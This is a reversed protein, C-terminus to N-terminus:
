IEADAGPKVGKWSPRKLRGAVERLACLAAKLDTENALPLRLAEVAQRSEDNDGKTIINHLRRGLTQGLVRTLVLGAPSNPNPLNKGAAIPQTGDLIDILRDHQGRTQKWNIKVDLFDRYWDLSKGCRLPNVLLSALFGAAELRLQALFHVLERERDDPFPCQSLVLWKGAAEALHNSGPLHLILPGSSSLFSQGQIFLRDLLRTTEKRDPVLLTLLDRQQPEFTALVTPLDPCPLELLQSVRTLLAPFWEEPSAVHPEDEGCLSILCSEEVLLPHTHQYVYRGSSVQLLAPLPIGEEQLAFHYPAHNQHLVVCREQGLRAPVCSPHLHLDGVLALCPAKALRLKQIMANERELFSPSNPTGSDPHELALIQCGQERGAELLAEYGRTPVSGWLEAFGIAEFFEAAPRDSAVWVDLESQKSAPIVELALTHAAYSRLFYAAVLQARPLTHYDGVLLFDAHKARDLFRDRDIRRWLEPFSREFDEVAQRLSPKGDTGLKRAQRAVREWLERQLDLVKGMCEMEAM